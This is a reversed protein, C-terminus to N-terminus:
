LNTFDDEMAGQGTVEVIETEASVINEGILQSVEAVPVAMKVYANGDEEWGYDTLEALYITALTRTKVVDSELLYNKVTTQSELTFGVIQKILQQYADIEAVRLAKLKGAMSPTSTAFAVRRFSKNKLDVSEGDINTITELDVVATVKAIDKKTDYVIEEFRVGRIKARTKSETKGEFTAAVMDVVEESAKLKLGYVSEVIARQALVKAARITMIKKNGAVCLSSFFILFGMPIVVYTGIARAM